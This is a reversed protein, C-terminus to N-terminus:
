GYRTHCYTQHQHWFLSQNDGPHWYRINWFTHLLSNEAVPTISHASTLIVSYSFFCFFVWHFPPTQPLSVLFPALWLHCLCLPSTTQQQKKKKKKPPPPPPRPYNPNRPTFPLPSSISLSSTTQSLHLILQKPSCPLHLDLCCHQWFKELKFSHVMDIERCFLWSLLNISRDNPNFAKWSWKYNYRIFLKIM